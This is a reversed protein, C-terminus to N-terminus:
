NRMNSHRLIAVAQFQAFIEVRIKSVFHKMVVVFGSVSRREGLFKKGIVFLVATGVVRSKQRESQLYLQLAAM